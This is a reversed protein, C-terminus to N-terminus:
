RQHNMDGIKKWSPPQPNYQSKLLSWGELIHPFLKVLIVELPSRFGSCYIPWNGPLRRSPHPRRAGHGRARGREGSQLGQRRSRYTPTRRLGSEGIGQRVQM